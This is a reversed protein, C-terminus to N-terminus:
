IPFHNEQSIMTHSIFTPAKLINGTEMFKTIREKHKTFSGCASCTFRPQKLHIKLMCKYGTLLFRNAIENM